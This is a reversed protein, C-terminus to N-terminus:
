SCYLNMQLDYIQHQRIHSRKQALINLTLSNYKYPILMLALRDSQYPAIIEMEDILVALYQWTGHPASKDYVGYVVAFTGHAIRKLFLSYYIFNNKTQTWYILM